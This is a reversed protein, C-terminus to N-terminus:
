GVVFDKPDESLDRIKLKFDADNGLSPDIKNLRKQKFSKTPKTKVPLPNPMM